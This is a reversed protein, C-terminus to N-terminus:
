TSKRAAALYPGLYRAAVKEPSWSQHTDSFLMARLVPRFPSPEVPSGLRCAIAAAAADAQQAALGGQKIPHSTADGIAYVDPLGVVSAHDDVPIFGERDTPLGPIPSRLLRPLAVVAEAGVWRGDVLVVRDGEIRHAAGGTLVRVGREELLSVVLASMLPGLLGLPVVEPTVLSLEVDRIRRGALWSSTLLVLDYVPLTWGDDAAVFCVRRLAGSEMRALLEQMRPVARPGVFSVAGQLWAEQRAGIAVVLAGYGLTEGSRLVIERVAPRVSSLADRRHVIAHTEQLRRLPVTLEADSAFPEAVSLARSTFETQPAILAIPVADGALARLALAAELGGVGAGAILVGTGSSRGM